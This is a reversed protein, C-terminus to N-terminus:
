QMKEKLRDGSVGDFVHAAKTNFLIHAVDGTRFTRSMDCRIQVPIGEVVATVLQETGLREVIDIRAPAGSDSITISESRFGVTIKAGEALGFKQVLSDTSPIGYTDIHLRSNIVTAPLLNMPPTGIFGAVFTNAPADYLDQPSGDQRIRGGDLIIVRSGMTMAEVQDHTVYVFTRGLRQHLRIIEARTATRLQADLNSLPEDMLFVQPDSIMARALAVRQRQGGSLERPKRHLLKSLGVSAAVEEAQSDLGSEVAKRGPFLHGLVPIEYWWHWKRMKIPFSINNKVSLHAYLAYSQFVMAIDRLRPPFDTVDRGGIKIRGESPAELGAILRLLTSKGCGSPGLLVVFEGPKINLDFKELVAQQGFRKTLNKLDIGACPIALNTVSM